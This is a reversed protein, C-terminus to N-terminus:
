RRTLRLLFWAIVIALLLVVVAPAIWWRKYARAEAIHDKISAIRAELFQRQPSGMSIAREFALAALNLDGANLCAVGLM